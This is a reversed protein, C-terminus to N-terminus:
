IDYNYDLDYHSKTQNNGPILNMIGSFKEDELKSTIEKQINEYIQTYLNEMESEEMDNIKISNNEDLDEIEVKSNFDLTQKITIDFKNDQVNFSIQANVESIGTGVKGKSTINFDFSIEDSYEEKITVKGSTTKTGNEEKITYKIEINFTEENNEQTKIVIYNENNNEYKEISVINDDVIIETKVTKGKNEYVKITLEDEDAYELEDKLDEIADEITEKINDKSLKEDEDIMSNINTKNVKEIILNLTLDDDKLTELLKIITNIAEQENIKVLYANAKITKGNVTTEINKQIEYKEKGIEEDLVKKYTKLITNRDEKSVYLLDYMDIQEFKDPMSDEDLGLKQALQKLNNNEVSIYKDHLFDSKIGYLDGNKIISAELLNSNDYDIKFDAYTKNEKSINKEETTIKMKNIEDAIERIQYNETEVNISIEGTSTYDKDNVNKYNNLVEDYDLKSFTEVNQGLYKYFLDKPSKFADGFAYVAGMAVAIVLVVAIITTIIIKNKKEM